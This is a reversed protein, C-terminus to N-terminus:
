TGHTISMRIRYRMLHEGDPETQLWQKSRKLKKKWREARTGVNMALHQTNGTKEECTRELRTSIKDPSKQLTHGIWGTERM